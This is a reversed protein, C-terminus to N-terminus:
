RSRLADAGHVPQGRAPQPPHARRDAIVECGSGRLRPSNARPWCISAPFKRHRAFQQVGPCRAREVGGRGFRHVLQVAKAPQVVQGGDPSRGARSRACAPSARSPAGSRVRAPRAPCRPQGAVSSGAQEAMRNEQHLASACRLGGKQPHQRMVRGEQVPAAAMGRGAQGPYLRAGPQKIGRQRQFAPLVPARRDDAASVRSQSRLDRRIAANGRAVGFFQQGHEFAKAPRPLKSASFPGGTGSPQRRSPRMAPAKRQRRWASPPSIRHWPPPRPRSPTSAAASAACSASDFRGGRGGGSCAM